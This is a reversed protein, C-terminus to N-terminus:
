ISHWKFGNNKSPCKLLNPGDPHRDRKFMTTALYAATDARPFLSENMYSRADDQSM